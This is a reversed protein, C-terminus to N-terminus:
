EIRGNILKVVPYNDWLEVVNICGYDQEVRFINELPIGLLECLMIRNIGGHSVIAINHGNHQVTIKDFAKLARDRVEITSEGQMPSFKLPNDAWANFENPYKDKIEDFSMGEWIGFNRERLEPMIIPKLGHPEAIIGASKVARNLDSCYIVSLESTVEASGLKQVEASLYEAVREMQRIGNESMPVDIHGKYRRTEAGETEGHRILYLTTLM